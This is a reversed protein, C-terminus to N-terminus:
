DLVTVLLPWRDVLITRSLVVRADLSRAIWGALWGAVAPPPTSVLLVQNLSGAQSTHGAKSQLGDQKM